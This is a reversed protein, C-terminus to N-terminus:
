NLEPTTSLKQWLAKAAPTGRYVSPTGCHGASIRETLGATCLNGLLTRIAGSPNFELRSFPREQAAVSLVSWSATGPRARTFTRPYNKIAPPPPLANAAAIRALIADPGGALAIARASFDALTAKM